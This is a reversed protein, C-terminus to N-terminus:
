LGFALPPSCLCHIFDRRSICFDVNKEADLGKSGLLQGSDCVCKYSTLSRMM